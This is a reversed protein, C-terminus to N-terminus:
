KPSADSENSHETVCNHGRKQIKTKTAQRTTVTLRRTQLLRQSAGDQGSQETLEGAGTLGAADAEAHLKMAVALTQKLNFKKTSESAEGQITTVDVQTSM